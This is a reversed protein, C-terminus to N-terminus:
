PGAKTDPTDPREGAPRDRAPPAADPGPGYRVKRLHGVMSRILLVTAVALLFIAIFGATGPGVREEPPPQQATAYATTYATAYAAAHRPATV